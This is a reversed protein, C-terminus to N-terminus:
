FRIRKFRSCMIVNLNIKLAARMYELELRLKDNGLIQSHITLFIASKILSIFFISTSVEWAMIRIKDDAIFVDRKEKLIKVIFNESEFVNSSLGFSMVINRRNSWITSQSCKTRSWKSSPKSRSPFCAARLFGNKADDWYDAARAM